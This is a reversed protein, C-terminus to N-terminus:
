KLEKWWRVRPEVGGALSAALGEPVYLKAREGEGIGSQAVLVQTGAITFGSAAGKGANFAKQV